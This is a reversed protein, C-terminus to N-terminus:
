LCYTIYMMKLMEEYLAIDLEQL